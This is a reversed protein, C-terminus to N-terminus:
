IIRFKFFILIELVKKLKQIKIAQFNGFIKTEIIKESNELESKKNKLIKEFNKELKKFHKFVNKSNRRILKNESIQKKM